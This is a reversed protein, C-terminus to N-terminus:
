SALASGPVWTLDDAERPSARGVLPTHDQAATTPAPVPMRATGRERPRCLTDPGGPRPGALPGCARSHDLGAPGRSPWRHETARQKTDAGRPPHTAGLWHVAPARPGRRCLLARSWSTKPPEPERESRRAREQGERRSSETKKEVDSTMHAPPRRRQQSLGALWHRCPRDIRLLRVWLLCCGLTRGCRMGVPGPCSPPAWIHLGLAGHAARRRPGTSAHQRGRGRRMLGSPLPVLLRLTAPGAPLACAHRQRPTSAPAGDPGMNVGAGAGRGWLGCGASLLSGERRFRDALTQRAPRSRWYRDASHPHPPPPHPPHSVVHVGGARDRTGDLLARANTPTPPRVPMRRQAASPATGVNAALSLWCRGSRTPASVCIRGSISGPPRRYAASPRPLPNATADGAPPARTRRQSQRPLPDDACRPSGLNMGGRATQATAAPRPVCCLGLAQEPPERMCRSRSYGTAEHERTAEGLSSPSANKFVAMSYLVSRAPRGGAVDAGPQDGRGAM